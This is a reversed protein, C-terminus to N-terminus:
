CGTPTSGSCGTCTCSPYLAPYPTQTTYTEPWYNGGRDDWGCYGDNPFSPEFVIGNTGSPGGSNAGGCPGYPGTCPTGYTRLVIANPSSAQTSTRHATYGGSNDSCCYPIQGPVNTPFQSGSCYTASGYLPIEDGVHRLKFTIGAEEAVAAAVARLSVFKETAARLPIRTMHPELNPHVEQFETVGAVTLDLTTGPSDKPPMFDPEPTYSVIGTRLRLFAVQSGQADLGRIVLLRDEGDNRHEISV